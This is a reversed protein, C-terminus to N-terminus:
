VVVVAAIRNELVVDPSFNEIKLSREADAPLAAEPVLGVIESGAIEIKENAAERKVADFAAQMGTMEYDILNMSVQAQNRRKLFIGLAKVSPLGGDSERVRRAIRRAIGVDDTQLNVNFAILIKRAGVACAGATEHVRRAGEDPTRSDDISITERLEEFGKRRVRELRVREQTRAAREYFYIPINLERAIREGAVHAWLACEGMTVGRLPVFPVVDAAGIRPHVGTHRRLDILEAAKEVARVAAAVITEPTSVFTVVSRNHDPDSHIDLVWAGSELEIAAAIKAIVEPKQGESFNPVCEVLKDM